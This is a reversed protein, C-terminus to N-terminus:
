SAGSTLKRPEHISQVGERTCAYVITLYIEL